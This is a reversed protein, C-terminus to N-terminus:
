IIATKLNKKVKQQIAKDWFMSKRKRFKKHEDYKCERQM